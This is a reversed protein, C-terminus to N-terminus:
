EPYVIELKIEEGLPKFLSEYYEKASNNLQERYQNLYKEQQKTSLKQTVLKGTDIDKTSYSLIEGSTDYLTYPHKEDLEVGIVEYQPIEIRFKNESIEKISVPQKIGLKADYTLIIIAKKESLPVDAKIWPIQTKETKTEVSEIGVNLFVHENVEKLYKVMSISQSDAQSTTFPQILSAVFVVIAIILVTWVPIRWKFFKSSIKKLVVM